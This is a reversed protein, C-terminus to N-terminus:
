PEGIGDNDGLLCISFLIRSTEWPGTEFLGECFGDWEVFLWSSDKIWGFLGRFHLGEWSM